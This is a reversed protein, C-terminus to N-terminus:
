FRNTPRVPALTLLLFMGAGACVLMMVEFPSATCEMAYSLWLWPIPSLIQVGSAIGALVRRGTRASMWLLLLATGMALFYSFLILLLFLSFFGGFSIGDYIDWLYYATCALSVVVIVADAWFLANRTLHQNEM